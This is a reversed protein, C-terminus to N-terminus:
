LGQSSGQERPDSVGRLTEGSKQIAQIRCGLDEQYVDYGMTKLASITRSPFTSAEVQIADKKWQHHYRTLAVAEWLPLDYELVNLLTLAVCSVIRTGSPTGLALYPAGNQLVLTPSMSSLPRKGPAILNNKGGIAGYLNSAGVQTAFDDMENNLMIGTGEAVLASGYFGNITQTSTIINGEADMLTFHITDPSEKQHIVDKERKAKNEAISTRIEEAYKKSTLKEVPAKVFDPDGLSHARDYFSQQM